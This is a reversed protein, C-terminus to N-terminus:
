EGKKMGSGALLGLAMGAMMGIGVNVNLATSVAVGLCLGLAVGESGFDEKRDADKKRRAARAFFVALLVGMAIWPLAAGIFDIVNKM